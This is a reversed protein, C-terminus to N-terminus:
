DLDNADIAKIQDVYVKKADNIIQAQEKLKAITEDTIPNKNLKEKFSAKEDTSLYPANDVYKLAEDRKINTNALKLNDIASQVEDLSANYNFTDSPNTNEKGNKIKNAVNLASDFADKNNKDANQYASSNPVDKVNEIAQKLELMKNDLTTA